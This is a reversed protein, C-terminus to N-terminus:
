NQVSTGDNYNLTVDKQINFIYINFSIQDDEISQAQMHVGRALLENDRFIPEVQYRVHHKTAKIYKAVRSEYEEMGPANMSATGTMLNKPNNNEGTLQFGIIHSRNYLWIRNGDSNVQKNHWGTPQIYLPDRERTPMLEKGLIANATGVRNLSDLDSFMQWSGHAISLDDKTFTPKGNNVNVVQQGDYDLKQLNEKSVSTTTKTTETSQNNMQTYGGFIAIALAIIITTVSVKIKRRKRRRAM